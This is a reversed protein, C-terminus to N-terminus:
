SSTVWMYSLECGSTGQIIRMRVPKAAIMSSLAMSYIESFLPHSAKLTFNEGEAPDCDVIGQPSDKPKILVRGESVGTAYIREIEGNCSIADCAALAIQGYVFCFLCVSAKIGGLM